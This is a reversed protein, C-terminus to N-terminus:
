LCTTLKRWDGDSKEGPASAVPSSMKSIDSNEFFNPIPSLGKFYSRNEFLAVWCRDDLVKLGLGEAESPYRHEGFVRFGRSRETQMWLGDDMVWLEYDM